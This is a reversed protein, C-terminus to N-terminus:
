PSLHLLGRQKREPVWLVYVWEGKGLLGCLVERHVRSNRRSQNLLGLLLIQWCGKFTIGQTGSTFCSSNTLYKDAIQLWLEQVKVGSEWFWMLLFKCFNATWGLTVLSGERGTARGPRSSPTLPHGLCDQCSQPQGVTAVCSTPHASLDSFLHPQNVQLCAASARPM